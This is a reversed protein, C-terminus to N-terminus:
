TQPVRAPGLPRSSSPTRCHVHGVQPVTCSRSVFAARLMRARPRASISFVNASAPSAFAQSATEFSTCCELVAAPCPRRAPPIRAREAQHKPPAACAALAPLIDFGSGPQREELPLQKKPWRRERLYERLAGASGFHANIQWYSVNSARKLLEIVVASEGFQTATVDVVRGDLVVFCHDCRDAHSMALFPAYGAASLRRFLEVSAIACMGALTPTFSSFPDRAYREAWGRTQRAIARVPELLEDSLLSPSPSRV